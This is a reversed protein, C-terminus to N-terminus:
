LCTTTDKRRREVMSLFLYMQKSLFRDMNRMAPRFGRLWHSIAAYQLAKQIWSLPLCPKTLNSEKPFFEHHGQPLYAHFCCVCTFIDDCQVNHQTLLVTYNVKEATLPRISPVILLVILVYTLALKTMEIDNFCMTPKPLTYRAIRNTHNCTHSTYAYTPWTWM